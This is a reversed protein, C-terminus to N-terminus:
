ELLDARQALGATISQWDDENILIPVHALPWEREQTGNEDYIRYFVGADLLYQSAKSFRTALTEPGLDDLADLLAKWGPRLAGTADVMEDVVGPLPRYGALLGGGPVAKVKRAQPM